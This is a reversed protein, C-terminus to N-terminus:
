IARNLNKDKMYLDSKKPLDKIWDFCDIFYQLEFRCLSVDHPQQKLWDSVVIELKNM